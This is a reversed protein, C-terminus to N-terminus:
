VVASTPLTGIVLTFATISCTLLIPAFMYQLFIATSMGARNGGALHVMVMLNNATPTCTVVMSALFFQGVWRQSPDDILPPSLFNAMFYAVAIGVGPMFVMRGFVIGLALRKPVASWVPGHTLSSGLLLLNVPVAADGLMEVGKAVWSFIANPHPCDNYSM